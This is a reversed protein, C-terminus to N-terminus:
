KLIQYLFFAVLFILLVVYKINKNTKSIKNPVDSNNDNNIADILKQSDIYNNEKNEYVVDCYIRFYFALNGNGKKKKIEEDFFIKNKKIINFVKEVENESLNYDSIYRSIKSFHYGDCIIDTESYIKHFLMKLAQKKM